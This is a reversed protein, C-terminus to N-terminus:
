ANVDDKDELIKERQFPTVISYLGLILLSWLFTQGLKIIL